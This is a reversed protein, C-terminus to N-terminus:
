RNTTRRYIFFSKKSSAATFNANAPTFIVSIEQNGSLSPEFSCTSNGTGSYIKKYCAPIRKGAILFNVKGPISTGDGTPTVNITVAIGKYPTASLTPTSISANEILDQLNITLMYTSSSVNGNLDMLQFYYLYSNNGSVSGKAEFNPTSLFSFSSGSLTFKDTDMTGGSPIVFVSESFSFNGVLNQNENPTFTASGTYTPATQDLAANYNQTAETSTLARNYFAIEGIGGEFAADAVWNSKGIYMNSWTTSAVTGSYSANTVIQLNDKYVNCLGGGVTVVWFHWSSDIAGNARCYGPSTGGNFMEIFLNSGTGERGVELNNNAAGNGFDIIREFNNAQIGFNAYFSLSFSNTISTMSTASLYGGSANFSVQGGNASSTTPQSSVQTFTAPRNNGSLDRLHTSDVLGYYNAVDYYFLLGNTAVSVGDYAAAHAAPLPSLLALFTVAITASIKARM